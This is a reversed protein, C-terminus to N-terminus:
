GRADDELGLEARLENPSAADELWRCAAQVMVTVDPFSAAFSEGSEATFAAHWTARSDVTCSRRDRQMIAEYWQRSQRLELRLSKAQRILEADVQSKVLHARSGRFPAHPAATVAIEIRELAETVGAEHHAGGLEVIYRAQGASDALDRARIPTSRVPLIIPLGDTVFPFNSSSSFCLRDLSAFSFFRAIPPRDLIGEILPLFLAWPFDGKRARELSDLWHWRSVDGGGALVEGHPEIALGPHHRRLKELSARAQTWASVAEVLEDEPLIVSAVHDQGLWFASGGVESNSDVRCSRDDGYVWLGGYPEAVVRVPPTARLRAGLIEALRLDSRRGGDFFRFRVLLEEIIRHDVIWARVCRIVEAVDFTRGELLERGREELV